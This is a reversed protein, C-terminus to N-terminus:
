RTTSHITQDDDQYDVHWYGENAGMFALNTGDALATDFAGRIGTTWYEDHGAVMVLRHRLLSSPDADTDLDTQYSVDYGERELFRVLQIEWWFPSQALYGFPREFSVRNM